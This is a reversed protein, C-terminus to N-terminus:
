VRRDTHRGFSIGDGESFGARLQEGEKRERQVSRNERDICARNEETKFKLYDEVKGTVMFHDWSSEKM